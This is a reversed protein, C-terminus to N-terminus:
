AAVSTAWAGIVVGLCGISSHSHNFHILTRGVPSAAEATAPKQEAADQDRDTGTKGSPPQSPRSRCVASRRRAQEEHANPASRSWRRPRAGRGQALSHQDDGTAREGQEPQECIRAGARCRAGATIRRSHQLMMPSRTGAARRSRSGADHRQRLAERLPETGARGDQPSSTSSRCGERVEVRRSGTSRAPTPRDQMAM